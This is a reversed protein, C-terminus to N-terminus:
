GRSNSLCEHRLPRNELPVFVCVVNGDHLVNHSSAYLASPNEPPGDAILTWGGAKLPDLTGQWSTTAAPPTVSVAASLVPAAPAATVAPTMPAAAPALNMPSTQGTRIITGSTLQASASAGWARSVLLWLILAAGWLGPAPATWSNTAPAALVRPQTRRAARITRM